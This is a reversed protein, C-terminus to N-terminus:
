PIQSGVLRTLRERFCRFTYNEEVRRRGAEGMRRRLPEDRLLRIVREALADVDGYPVLFGSEGDVVIEPTGGHNGAVVPKGWAMAEIYSLSLGEDRSPMVFIDCSRYYESLEGGVKGPFVVRDGVGMEAALCELRGRDDGDGVLCYHTEPVSGVIKPLARIVTDMGKYRESASMRGVTLLLRASSGLRLPPRRDGCAAVVGEPLAPPVIAFKSPSIKQAESARKATYLCVSTIGDACRLGLRNLWPLLAWADVGYIAVWYPTGRKLLRMPLGLSAMNPHGVYVVSSRLIGALAAFAFGAKNRGFGQVRFELGEAKILHDGSPDNLSLFRYHRRRQQALHALVAGAQVNVRQIGGPGLFETFLGVIM